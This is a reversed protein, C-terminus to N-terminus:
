KNKQIMREIKGNENKYFVVTTNDPSKIEGIKKIQKKPEAAPTTVSQKITFFATTNKKEKSSEFFKLNESILKLDFPPIKESQLPEISIGVDGKGDGPSNVSLSVVRRKGSNILDAIQEFLKQGELNFDCTFEIHYPPAKEGTMVAGNESIINRLRKNFDANEFIKEVEFSNSKEVANEKIVSFNQSYFLKMVPLGNEYFVSEESKNRNKFDNLAALDEPYIEKISASLTETFGDLEWEFVSIKGGSKNLVDFFLNCLPVFDPEESIVVSDSAVTEVEAVTEHEFIKGCLFIVCWALLCFILSLFILRMKENVFFRHKQKGAFFGTGSFNRKGEYEALKRKSMVLVDTSIGKKGIKRVATDFCFEDSFCPHMKELESYLYKKRRRGLVASFPLVIEYKEFDDKRLVNTKQIM